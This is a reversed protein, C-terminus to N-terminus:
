RPRRTSQGSDGSEVKVMTLTGEQANVEFKFNGLFSMGLLPPANIARPGLVACEVNAVTFKGVRVSPITVLRGDIKSGDALELIIEPDTSKVQIGCQAAVNQPLSILSAGSDLVMEHTHKGDIVVSVYLSGSPEVRIKISESLVTDELSKLKSLSAKLTRSPELSYSKGTAQNLQAVVNSIEQDTAFENYKLDISDALKRMDLIFQIYSERAKNAKARSANAQTEFNESQQRLLEMQGQNARIAGVLQNNQSVSTANVLQANLQVNLQTLKIINDKNEQVRADITAAEKNADLLSKRIAYVDRLGKSLTLEESLAVGTSVVRIGKAALTSKAAKEAGSDGPTTTNSEGNPKQLGKIFERDAQSLRNLPVSIVRGDATKLTVAGTRAEVLEATIKFKGDSSTWTRAEISSVVACSYLTAFSIITLPRVM